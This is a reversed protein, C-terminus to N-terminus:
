RRIRGALLAAIALTQLTGSLIFVVPAQGPVSPTNAHLVVERALGFLTPAIGYGTQAIAVILSAVRAVDDKVFEVQAILPPLSLANGFGLGFLIVGAWLLPVNTGAALWFCVSGSLQALYGYCAIVRRDAGIPMYRGLFARGAMAMLTIGGMAFGALQAGLAHTLLSYLHVTLGLQAFLGLAMAAALTIFARDRWLLTSPLPRAYPSTVSTLPAGPADGDAQVGMGAPTKSFVCQALVMVSMLMVMAIASAAAFFGLATILAVWLPSFVISGVSGGNFALGLAAPRARVFWPSVLLNLAAASMTGWGAGSSLAALFLQWPANAAAWGMVGAGLLLAGAQTVCAAGFRRHLAPLNAGALAGILFHLGVASSIWTLPWGTADRVTALFIPPGYFGLGWGFAALVFASQAVRWGYFAAPKSNSDHSAAM